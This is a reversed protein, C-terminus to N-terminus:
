AEKRPRVVAVPCHAHHLVGHSVSGLVASAFGGMGRSGVVLLDATKSTDVLAAVPHECLTSEKVEIDGLKDRRRAVQERAAGSADAAVRAMVEDYGAAYPATVPMQWAYVVHLRIGRAVAQALAYNLAAESHESGDFGVAIEGHQPRDPGRLIVVPVDAHGAVGLGVSGLLLGGFGGLGRSGLVISEAGAAEGLLTEVVHGPLLEATVEVGPASLRARDAAAALAGECYETEEPIGWRECVHVIRLALKRRAADAAAWEVAKAASPSGDVGVVIPGLDPM